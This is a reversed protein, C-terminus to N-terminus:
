MKGEVYKYVLSPPFPMSGPTQSNQTQSKSTDRLQTVKPFNGLRESGSWLFPIAFGTDCAEKSLYFLPDAQRGGWGFQPRKLVLAQAEQIQVEGVGVTGLM